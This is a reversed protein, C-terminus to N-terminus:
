GYTLLVALSDEPHEDIIRYAEPARVFPIRHTILSGVDLEALRELALAMRREASWRPQLGSGIMGVMSSVIRQRRLHFEPALRLTVPRGGYYSIVVITGEQGTVEVAQQLASPAGSAEIVHDAGRGSSLENVIAHADDPHVVADASIWDARRRREPLPDVLVLRGATARALHAAFSGIVGLGFVVVVDGIRVPVDLLSNYAVCFLNAFAAQDSKIEEPLRFVLSAGEVLDGRGRASTSVCFREQHPHYVFVADGARYGASKGAQDVTGVVQYAFKIPFPFTGAATPLAIESPDATDGRYHNMETGASVLSVHTSVVIEDPRPNPVLEDRLEATRPATFWVARTTGLSSVLGVIVRM